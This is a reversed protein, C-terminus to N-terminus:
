RGDDMEKFSAHRSIGVLCSLTCFMKTGGNQRPKSEHPGWPRFDGNTTM